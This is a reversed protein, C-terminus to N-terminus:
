GHDSSQKADGHIVCPRDELSEGPLPITQQRVFGPPALHGLQRGVLGLKIYSDVMGWAEQVVEPPIMRLEGLMDWVIPWGQEATFQLDSWHLPADSGDPGLPLFTQDYSVRCQNM